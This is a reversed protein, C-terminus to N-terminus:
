PRSVKISEYVAAGLIVVGGALTRLSPYESLFLAALAIGYAPQLSQVIGVTKAKLHSLSSLLLTHPLATFIVGLAILQWAWAGFEGGFGEPLFPLMVLAGVSVQYLMVVSSSPETLYRKQFVNRASYLFASMVGWFAGRAVGSEFSGDPIMLYIGLLVALATLIDGIAVRTRFVIPELLVTIVPFTFLSIIAVAVTSVQIAHFYLVWHTSLFTGLIAVVLYDRPRTLRPLRRRALLLLGLAAAAVACRGFIIQEPPLDIIKPFLAVFGLFLTAGNIELLGKGAQRM